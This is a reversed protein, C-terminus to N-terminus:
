CVSLEEVYAGLVQESSNNGLDKGGWDVVCFGM